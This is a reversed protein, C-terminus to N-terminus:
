ICRLFHSIDDDYWGDDPCFITKDTGEKEALDALIEWKDFWVGGSGSHFVTLTVPEYPVSFNACDGIVGHGIFTHIDGRDFYGWDGKLPPTSCCTGDSACVQARLACARCGCSLCSDTYSSIGTIRLPDSYCKTCLAVMLVIIVACGRM